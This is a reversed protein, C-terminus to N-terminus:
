DLARRIEDVASDLDGLEIVLADAHDVAACLDGVWDQRGSIPASCNPIIRQIMEVKGSRRLTSQAGHNPELYFITSVPAPVIRWPKGFDVPNFGVLCGAQPNTLPGFKDFIASRPMFALSSEPLLFNRPFAVTSGDRFLALEDGIMEFGEMLLRLALTSKGSFKAGVILFCRERHIGTAARIGVHDPLTAIARRHLVQFLTELASTTSLEFGDIEDGSFRFESGTWAASIISRRTVPMFQEARHILQSLQSALERSNTRIEVELSLLRIREVYTPVETSNPPDDEFKVESSGRLLPCRLRV